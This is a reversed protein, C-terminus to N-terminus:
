CFAGSWREKLPLSFLACLCNGRCSAQSRARWGSSHGSLSEMKMEAERSSCRVEGPKGPRGMGSCGVENGEAPVWWSVEVSGKTDCASPHSADSREWNEKESGTTIVESVLFDKYGAMTRESSPECPRHRERGVCLGVPSQSRHAIWRSRWPDLGSSLLCRAWGWGPCAKDRNFFSDHFLWGLSHSEYVDMGTSQGKESLPATSISSPVTCAGLGPILAHWFTSNRDNFIYAMYVSHM